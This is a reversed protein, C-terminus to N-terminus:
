GPATAPVLGFREEMTQGSAFLEAALENGVYRLHWPENAYGTIASKDPPYRLIFGFRQANAAVWVSAPTSGFVQDDPLGVLGVDAALGTQHESTGPVAVLQDAEEQGYDDVFAEYLVRQDDASRYGSNLQLAFGATAAEAAMAEFAAATAATLQISDRDPDFPVDPVVLDAPVYGDPLPRDRNVLWWLSGVGDISPVTPPTTPAPTAETPAASASAPPAGDPDPDDGGVVNVVAFTLLGAVACLGLAAVVRRRGYSPPDPDRNARPAREDTLLPDTRM